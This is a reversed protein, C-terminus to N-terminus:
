ISSITGNNDLIFPYPVTSLHLFSFLEWRHFKSERFFSKRIITSRCHRRRISRSWDRFRWIHTHIHGKNYRTRINDDGSLDSVFQQPTSHLFHSTFRQSNFARALEHRNNHHFILSKDIIRIISDFPIANNRCSPHQEQRSNAFHDVM